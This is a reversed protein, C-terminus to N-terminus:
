PDIGILVMKLPIFMWLDWSNQHEGPTSNTNVCQWMLWVSKQDFSMTDTNSNSLLCPSWVAPPILARLYEHVIGELLSSVSSNFMVM